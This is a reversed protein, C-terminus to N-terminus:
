RDRCARRGARRASRRCSRRRGASPSRRGRRRRRSWSRHGGIGRGLGPLAAHAVAEAAGPADERQRDDRDDQRDEDAREDDDERLPEDGALQLGAEREVGVAREHRARDAGLPGDDVREVVRHRQEEAAQRDAEAELGAQEVDADLALEQHARQARDDDADLQPLARRMMAIGTESIAPIIKPAAHPKMGPKRFATEPAWSTTVVIMSLKTAMAMRAAATLPGNFTMPEADGVVSGTPLADSGTMM